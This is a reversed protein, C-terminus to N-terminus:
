MIQLITIDIAMSGHGRGTGSVHICEMYRLTHPFSISFKRVSSLATKPVSTAGARKTYHVIFGTTLIRVGPGLCLKGSVVMNGMLSGCLERESLWRHLCESFSNDNNIKRVMIKHLCLGPEETRAACLHM